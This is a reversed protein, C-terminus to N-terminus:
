PKRCWKCLGQDSRHEADFHGKCKHCRFDKVNALRMLEGTARSVGRADYSVSYTTPQYCDCSCEEHQPDTCRGLGTHETGLHGCACKANDYAVPATRGNLWGGFWNIVGLADTVATELDDVRQQLEEIKELPAMGIGCEYACSKNHHPFLALPLDPRGCRPCAFTESLADLLEQKNPPQGDRYTYASWLKEDIM